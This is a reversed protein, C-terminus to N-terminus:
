TNNSINLILQVTEEKKDLPIEKTAYVFTNVMGSLENESIKPIHTRLMKLNISLEKMLKNNIINDM